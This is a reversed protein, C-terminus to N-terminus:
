WQKSLWHLTLSFFATIANNYVYECKLVTPQFHILNYHTSGSCSAPQPLSHFELFNNGFFMVTM